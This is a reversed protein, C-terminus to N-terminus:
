CGSETFQESLGSKRWLLLGCPKAIKKQNQSVSSCQKPYKELMLDARLDILDLVLREQYLLLQLRRRGDTRQVFSCGRGQILTWSLEFAM